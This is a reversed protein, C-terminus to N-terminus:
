PRYWTSHTDRTQPNIVSALRIKKFENINEPEYLEYSVSQGYAISSNIDYGYRNKHMGRWKIFNRRGRIKSVNYGENALLIM